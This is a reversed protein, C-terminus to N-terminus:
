SKLRQEVFADAGPTEFKAPGYHHRGCRVLASIRFLPM